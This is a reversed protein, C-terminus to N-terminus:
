KIMRNVSKFLESLAEEENEKFKNSICSKVHNEFLLKSISNMASQVASIQILIDDCYVKNDIMKKIGRIQGEVRNLRNILNKEVESDRSKVKKLNECNNCNM